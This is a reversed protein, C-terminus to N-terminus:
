LAPDTLPIRAFAIFRTLGELGGDLCKLAREERARAIAIGGEVKLEREEEAILGLRHLRRRLFILFVLLVIALALFVVILFFAFTSVVLLVVFGLLRALVLILILAFLLLAVRVPLWIILAVLSGVAILLSILAM